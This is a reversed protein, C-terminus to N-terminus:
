SLCSSDGPYETAWMVHGWVALKKPGKDTEHDEEREEKGANNHKTKESCKLVM